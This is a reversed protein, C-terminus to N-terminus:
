QIIVPHFGNLNVSLLYMGPPLDSVYIRGESDTQNSKVQRGQLNLIRYPADQKNTWIVDKAPQPYLKIKQNHASLSEVSTSTVTCPLSMIRAWVENDFDSLALPSLGSADGLRIVVIKESPWIYIRQDNKGLASIVEDPASPILDGPFLFQSQPLLYSGKGNLWWLFGYSLNISQSTNVSRFLYTTDKLVTDQNWIGKNMILLGFRAMSRANSYYVNNDGTQLWLGTMGIKQRIRTQTYSNISVSTANEIVDKLLTYPANHYAWRTGTDTLYLLCSPLTCDPNTVLDSLGTTMSLQHRIKIKREQQTTLSTWGTGLFRSSSDEISLHGETQAIGVLAATLTKGASAWYWVSDRTFSGYYTELVIRGNKLIIFAKTNKSALYNELTDIRDPCWNLSSPSLTDWAPGILPPFYTGQSFSKQSLGYILLFTLSLYKM